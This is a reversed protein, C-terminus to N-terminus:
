RATGKTRRRPPRAERLLTTRGLAEVRRRLGPSAGPVPERALARSLERQLSLEGRCRECKPLHEEVAAVADRPLEGDVYAGLLGTVRRHAASFRDKQRSDASM